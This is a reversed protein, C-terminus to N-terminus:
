HSHYLPLTLSYHLRSVSHSMSLTPPTAVLLTFYHNLSHTISHTLSHTLSECGFWNVAFSFGTFAAVTLVDSLRVNRRVLDYGPQPHVVPYKPVHNLPM